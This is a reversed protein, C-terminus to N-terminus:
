LPQIIEDTSVEVLTGDYESKKDGTFFGVWLAVALAAIILFAGLLFIRRKKLMM